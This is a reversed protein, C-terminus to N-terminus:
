AGTLAVALGNPAMLQRRGPAIRWGTVSLRSALREIVAQLERPEVPKVLYADAGAGLGDIRDDLQGRATAMVLGVSQGSHARVWRAADMGDGDPLGLDLVVVHWLAARLSAQMASISGVGQAHFGKFQLYDVLELRLDPADEVILVHIKPM